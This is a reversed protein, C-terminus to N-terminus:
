HITEFSGVYGNPTLLLLWLTRDLDSELNENIM